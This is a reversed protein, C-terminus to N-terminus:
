NKQKVTRKLSLGGYYKSSTREESNEYYHLPYDPKRPPSNDFVDFKDSFVSIEMKNVPSSFTMFKKPRQEESEDEYYLDFKNGQNKKEVINGFM